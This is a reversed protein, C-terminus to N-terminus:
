TVMQNLSYDYTYLSCWYTQISIFDPISSHLLIFKDPYFISISGILRKLNAAMFSCKDIYFTGVDNTFFDYAQRFLRM